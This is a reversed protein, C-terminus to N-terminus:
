VSRQPPDLNLAQLHCRDNLSGVSVRRDGLTLTSLSALDITLGRFQALPIGLAECIFVKIVFNHSVIAARSDGGRLEALLPRLRVALDELSEGGPMRVAAVNPGLWEALFDAYKARLELIPVGETDGVDLEALEPRIEVELSHVTAILKAMELARTLPSSLVRTIPRTALEAAVAEAQCRGRETLPVDARGLGLGDRNHATEGHRALYVIM